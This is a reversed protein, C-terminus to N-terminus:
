VRSGNSLPRGSGRRRCTFVRRAPRHQHLRAGDPCGSQAYEGFTPGVLLVADGARVFALAVLRILRYQWEWRPDM